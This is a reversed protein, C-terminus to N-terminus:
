QQETKLYSMRRQNEEPLMRRSSLVNGLPDVVHIMRNDFDPMKYVKGKVEVAKNKIAEITDHISNKLPDLKDKYESKIEAFEDEIMAKMISDQALNDKQIALEDPTLPKMYAHEEIAISESELVSKRDEEPLNKLDYIDM